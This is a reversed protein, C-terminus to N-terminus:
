IDALLVIKCAHSYILEIYKGVYQMWFKNIDFFELATAVPTVLFTIFLPGLFSRPVVGPFELHDYQFYINIQTFKLVM